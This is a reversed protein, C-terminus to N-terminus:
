KRHWAVSDAMEVPLRLDRLQLIYNSVLIQGKFTSTAGLDRNSRPRRLECLYMDTNYSRGIFVCIKIYM